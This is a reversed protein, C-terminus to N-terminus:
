IVQKCERTQIKNCYRVKRGREQPGSRVRQRERNGCTRNVWRKVEVKFAAGFARRKGKNLVQLISSFQSILSFELKTGSWVWIKKREQKEDWGWLSGLPLCVISDATCAVCGTAVHKHLCGAYTHTHTCAHRRPRAHAHATSFPYLTSSPMHPSVPVKVRLVATLTHQWNRWRTLLFECVCECASPAAPLSTSWRTHSLHWYLSTINTDLSM